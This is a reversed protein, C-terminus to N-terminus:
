TSRHWEAYAAIGFLSTKRRILGSKLVLLIIIYVRHLRNGCSTHRATSSREQEVGFPVPVPSLIRLNTAFCRLARRQDRDFCDGFTETLLMRYQYTQEELVNCSEHKFELNKNRPKLRASKREWSRYILAPLSLRLPRM